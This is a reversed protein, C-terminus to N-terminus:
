NPERQVVCDYIVRSGDKEHGFVLARLNDSELDQPSKGKYFHFSCKTATSLDPMDIARHVVWVTEGNELKLSGILSTGMSRKGPWDTVPTNPATIIVDIETAKPIPANLIWIIDGKTKGISSTVSSSPTVIRYALTVGKGIPKPRPWKEIVRDRHKAATGEVEQKFTEPTYAIRWSGSKHLSAKLKGGLARCVLYVDSKKVGIPAWLKWTSARHGKGDTIGFRISCEAM